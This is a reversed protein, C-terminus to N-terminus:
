ADPSKRKSFYAVDYKEYGLREFVQQSDVNWEEILCAIVDNGLKAFWGEMETVLRRAINRRRLEPDVALRSIWGKRGDHTGLISGVLKGDLEAILFFTTDKIIESEIRRRSDRGRPRYSLGAKIWLTVIADYDDIRFERITIASLSELSNM